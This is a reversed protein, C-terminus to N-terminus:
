TACLAMIHNGKFYDQAVKEFGFGFGITVKGRGNERAQRLSVYKCRTRIPENSKRHRNHDTLTIKPNPKVVSDIM